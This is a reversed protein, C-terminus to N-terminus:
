RLERVPIEGPGDEDRRDHGQLATVMFSFIGILEM